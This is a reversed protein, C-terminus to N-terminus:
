AQRRLEFFRQSGIAGRRDLQHRNRSPWGSPRTPSPRCRRRWSAPRRRRFNKTTPPRCASGDRAPAMTSSAASSASRRTGSVGQAATSNAGREGTQDQWGYTRVADPPVAIEGSLVGAGTTANDAAMERAMALLAAPDDGSRELLEFRAAQEPTLRDVTERWTAATNEHSTM